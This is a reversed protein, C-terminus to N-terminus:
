YLCYNLNNYFKNKIIKSSLYFNCDKVYVKIDKRLNQEYSKQNILINIKMNNGFYKVLLNNCYQSIFKIKIIKWM